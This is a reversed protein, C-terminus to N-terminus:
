LFFNDFTLFLSFIYFSPPILTLFSSFLSYWIIFSHLFIIPLDVFIFILFSYFHLLFYSHFFFFHRSAFCIDSRFTLFPIFYRCNVIYYYRFTSPFLSRCFSFFTLFTLHIYRCVNSYYFIVGRVYFYSNKFLDFLSNLDSVLASYKFQFEEVITFSYFSNLPFFLIKNGNFIKNWQM